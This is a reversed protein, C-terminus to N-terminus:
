NCIDLVNIFGDLVVDGIQCEGNPKYFVTLNDIEFSVNNILIM